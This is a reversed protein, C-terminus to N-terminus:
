DEATHPKEYRRVYLPQSGTSRGVRELREIGSVARCCDGGRCPTLFVLRYLITIGRFAAITSFHNIYWEFAFTSKKKFRTAKWQENCIVVIVLALMYIMGLFLSTFFLQYPKSSKLRHWSDSWVLLLSLASMWPEIAMRESKMITFLNWSFMVDFVEMM